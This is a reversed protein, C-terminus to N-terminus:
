YYMDINRKHGAYTEACHIRKSRDHLYFLCNTKQPNYAAYIADPGPNSIAGAPLGEYLYTNYPSQIKKDEPRVRPWWGEEESGKAYQLTADVQLKMGRSIRNWIIGSILRMDNKGGAERQILSAIKIATDEDINQAKQTQEIKDIQKISENIMSSSVDVPEDYKNILYTKPFYHGEMDVKNLALHIKLFERKAEDSWGLKDGVVEAVQEKRLGEQVRVVEVSPNALDIYFSLKTLLTPDLHNLFVYSLVFIFFIGILIFVYKFKKNQLKRKAM